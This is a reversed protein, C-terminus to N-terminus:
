SWNLIMSSPWVNLKAFEGHLEKAKANYASAADRETNFVGLRYTKGDSIIDAYWKKGNRSTRVGKFRGGDKTPKIKRRNRTNQKQTCVRLNDRRNDLTDGNKHDVVMGKPCGVIYRHLALTEKRSFNPRSYAYTIGNTIQPHWKHRMVFELDDKDIITFKSGGIPIEISSM